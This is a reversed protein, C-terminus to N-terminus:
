FGANCVLCMFNRVFLAFIGYFPLYLSLVPMQTQVSDFFADTFYYVIPDRYTPDPFYFIIGIWKILTYMYM